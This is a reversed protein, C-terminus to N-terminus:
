DPGRYPAFVFFFPAAPFGCIDPTNPPPASGFAFHSFFVTSLIPIASYPRVGPGSLLLFSQFSSFVFVPAFDLIGTTVFFFSRHPPDVPPGQRGKTPSWRLHLPLLQSGSRFLVEFLPNFQSQLHLSAPFGRCDFPPPRPCKQTSIAVLFVMPIKGLVPRSNFPLVSFFFFFFFDGAFRAPLCDLTWDTAWLDFFCFFFFFTPLLVTPPPFVPFFLFLTQLFIGGLPFSPPKHGV